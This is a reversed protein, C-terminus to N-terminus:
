IRVKKFTEWDDNIMLDYGADWMERGDIIYMLSHRFQERTEDKCIDGIKVVEDFKMNAIYARIKNIYELPILM